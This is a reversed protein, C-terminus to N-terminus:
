LSPSPGQGAYYWDRLINRRGWGTEPNPPRFFFSILLPLSLPSLSFPYFPHNFSSFVLGACLASLFVSFIDPRHAAFAALRSWKGLGSVAHGVTYFLVCRCPVQAARGFFERVGRTKRKKKEKQEWKRRTWSISCSEGNIDRKINAWGAPSTLARYLKSPPPSAGALSRAALKEEMCQITRVLIHSPPSPSPFFFFRVCKLRYNCEVRTWPRQRPDCKAVTVM